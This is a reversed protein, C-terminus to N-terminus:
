IVVGMEKLKEMQKWKGVVRRHYALVTEQVKEGNDLTETTRPQVTCRPDNAAELEGIMQSIEVLLEADDLRSDTGIDWPAMGEDIANKDLFEDLSLKGNNAQAAVVIAPYLSLFAAPEGDVSHKNEEDELDNWDSIMSRTAWGAPAGFTEAILKLRGIPDLPTLHRDVVNVGPTLDQTDDTSEAAQLANQAIRYAPGEGVGVEIMDKYVKSELVPDPPPFPPVEHDEALEALKGSLMDRLGIQFQTLQEMQYDTAQVMRKAILMGAADADGTLTEFESALDAKDPLGDLEEATVARGTHGSLAYWPDTYALLKTDRLSKLLRQVSRTKYGCIRGLEVRDLYGIGVNNANVALYVLVLKEATPVDAGLAWNVLVM